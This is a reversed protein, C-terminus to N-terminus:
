PEVVHGNQKVIIRKVIHIVIRKLWVFLDMCSELCSM